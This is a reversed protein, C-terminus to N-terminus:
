KRKGIYILREARTLPMPSSRGDHATGAMPSEYDPYGPYAEDLLKVIKASKLNKTMEEVIKANNFISEGIAKTLSQSKQLRDLAPQVSEPTPEENKVPDKFYLKDEDNSEFELSAPYFCFWLFFRATIPPNTEGLEEQLIDIAPQLPQFAIRMKREEASWDLYCGPLLRNVSLLNDTSSTELGYTIYNSRRVTVHIPVNDHSPIPDRPVIEIIMEENRRPLQFTLCWKFLDQVYGVNSINKIWTFLEAAVPGRSKWVNLVNTYTCTSKTVRYMAALRIFGSISPWESTSPMQQIVDEDLVMLKLAYFKMKRVNVHWDQTSSMVQHFRKCTLAFDYFSSFDDLYSVIETLCHDNLSLISTSVRGAKNGM